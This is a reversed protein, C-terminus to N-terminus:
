AVDMRQGNADGLEARSRRALIRDYRSAFRGKRSPAALYDGPPASECTGACAGGRRSDFYVGAAPLMM